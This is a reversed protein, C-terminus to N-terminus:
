DREIRARLTGPNDRLYRFARAAREKILAGGLGGHYTYDKEEGFYTLRYEKTNHKYQYSEQHFWVKYSTSMDMEYVETDKELMKYKMDIGTERSYVRAWEMFTQVDYTYWKKLVLKGFNFQYIKKDKASAYCFPTSQKTIYVVYDADKDDGDRTETIEYDPFHHSLVLKMDEWDMGLYFGHMEFTEKRAKKAKDMVAALAKATSEQAAKKVEAPMAAMVAKKGADTKVGAFVKMDVKPASLKKVLDVELEDSKAKGKTLISYAIEPTVKDIFYKWTVSGHCVLEEISAASLPPLKALLENVQKEDSSGWSMTWSKKCEKRYQAVKDLIASVIAVVSKPDNIEAISAIGAELAVLDGRNWDYVHHKAIDGLIVKVRENEPLRSACVQYFKDTNRFRESVTGFYQIRANPSLSAFAIGVKEVMLDKQKDQNCNEYEKELKELSAVIKKDAVTAIANQVEASNSKAKIAICQEPSLGEGYENVIKVLLSDNSCNVIFADVFEKDYTSTSVPKAVVPKTARKNPVRVPIMKGRRDRVYKIDSVQKADTNRTSANPAFVIKLLKSKDNVRKIGSLVIKRDKIATNGDLLEILTDQSQIKDYAALRVAPVSAHRVIHALNKEDSLKGLAMQRIAADPSHEALYVFGDMTAIKAASASRVEPSKAEVSLKLFVREGDLKGIAALGEKITNVTRGKATREANNATAAIEYLFDKNAVRRVAAVRMTEDGYERNSQVLEREAENKVRPDNSALREDLSACGSIVAVGIITFVAFVLKKM